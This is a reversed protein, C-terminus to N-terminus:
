WIGFAAIQHLDQRDMLDFQIVTIDASGRNKYFLQLLRLSLCGWDCRSHDVTFQRAENPRSRFM